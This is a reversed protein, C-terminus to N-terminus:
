NDVFEKFFNKIFELFLVKVEDYLYKKGFKVFLLFCDYIFYEDM